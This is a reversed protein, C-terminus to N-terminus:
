LADILRHYSTVLLLTRGLSPCGIRRGEQGGRTYPRPGEVWDMFIWADAPAPPSPNVSAWCPGGLESPLLLCPERGGLQASVNGGSSVSGAVDPRPCLLLGPLPGPNQNRTNAGSRDELLGLSVSM